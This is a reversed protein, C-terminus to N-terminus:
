FITQEKEAEIMRELDATQKHRVKNIMESRDPKSNGTLLYAILVIFIAAIYLQDILYQVFDPAIFRILIFIFFVIGFKIVFSSVKNMVTEFPILRVPKM